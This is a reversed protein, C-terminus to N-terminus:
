KKSKIIKKRLWDDSFIHSGNTGTDTLYDTIRPNVLQFRKRIQAADIISCSQPFSPKHHDFFVKRFQLELMGEEKLWKILNSWFARCSRNSPKYFTKIFLLLTKIRKVVQSCNGSPVFTKSKNTQKKSFSKRPLAFHFATSRMFNVNSEKAQCIHTCQFHQTLM